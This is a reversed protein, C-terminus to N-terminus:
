HRRSGDRSGFVTWSVLFDMADPDRLPSEADMMKKDTEISAVSAHPMPIAQPLEEAVTMAIDESTRHNVIDLFEAYMQEGTQVGLSFFRDDSAAM